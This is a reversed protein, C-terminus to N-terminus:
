TRNRPRCLQFVAPASAAAVGTAVNKKKSIANFFVRGLPKVSGSNMAGWRKLFETAFHEIRVAYLRQPDAVGNWEREGRGEFGVGDETQAYQIRPEM